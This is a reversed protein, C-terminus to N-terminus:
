RLRNRHRPASKRWDLYGLACALAIAVVDSRAPDPLDQAFAQLARIIKNRQHDLWAVAPTPHDRFREDYVMLLAADAIGDALRAHTLCRYRDFGPAPILRHRGDLGDLLELIVASDYFAADGILLCPMKGLPNQRRLSDAPDRTDADERTIRDNLDLVQAAIRVKRGFPSTVTGRLIVPVSPDAWLGLLDNAGGSEPDRTSIM